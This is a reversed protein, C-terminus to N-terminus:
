YQQFYKGCEQKFLIDKTIAFRWQKLIFKTPSFLFIGPWTQHILPIFLWILYPRKPEFFSQTARLLFSKRLHSVVSDSVIKIWCINRCHRHALCLARIHVIAFPCSRIHKLLLLQISMMQFLIWNGWDVVKFSVNSLFTNYRGPKWM